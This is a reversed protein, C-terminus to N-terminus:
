ELVVEQSNNSAIRCSLEEAREIALSAVVGLYDTLESEFLRSADRAGSSAHGCEHLLTGAYSSLSQLQSRLITIRNYLPEYIGVASFMQMYGLSSDSEKQLKNSILVEPIDDDEDWGVMEMIQKTKNFITAEEETLDTQDIYEFEFSDEVKKVYTSFTTADEIQINNYDRENSVIINRGEIKLAEIIDPNHMMEDETIFIADTDLQALAEIAITAIERWAIEDCQEGTSRSEIQDALEEKIEESNAAKLISKVRDTYLSRGVNTRERNLAKRMSSTLNTINYSFLFNPEVAALVGNIYVENLTEKAEIVDGYKTNEIVRSDKFKLFLNKSQKIHEETVGRLFFDTGIMDIKQDNYMVHLTEIGDFNEKSAMAINFTGFASKIEPEIGHRHFVAIADKLGIGFKGIVGPPGQFKELNEEQTFNDIQIGRGFDRIGWGDEKQYIVIDDSNSILAEDLANAIIERVAHPIAWNELVEVINLDFSLIENRIKEEMIHMKDIKEIKNEMKIVEKKEKKITNM